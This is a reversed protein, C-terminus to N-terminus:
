AVAVPRYGALLVAAADPIGTTSSSGTDGAYTVSRSYNGVTESESRVGSGTGASGYVEAAVILAASRLVDPVTAYTYTVLVRPLHWWQGWSGYYSAPVLSLRDGVITYTLASSAETTVATVTEAFIPLFATGDFLRLNVTRSGTFPRPDMGIHAGIMATAVARASTASATDLDDRQMHAALEPLDFLEAV